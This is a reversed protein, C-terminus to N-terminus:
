YEPFVLFGSVRSRFGVASEVSICLSIANRTRVVVNVERKGRSHDISLLTNHRAEVSAQLLLEATAPEALCERRTALRFTSFRAGKPIKSPISRRSQFYGSVRGAR